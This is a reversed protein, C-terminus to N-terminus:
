RLITCQAISHAASKGLRRRLRHSKAPLEALASSPICLRDHRIPSSLQLRGLTRRLIQSNLDRRGHAVRWPHAPGRDAKSKHVSETALTAGPKDDRQGWGPSLRNGCTLFCWWFARQMHARFDDDPFRRRLGFPGVISERVRCSAVHRVVASRTERRVGLCAM